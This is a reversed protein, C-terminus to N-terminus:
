RGMAAAFLEPHERSVRRQAEHQTLKPDAKLEDQVAEQFVRLADDRDVGPRRRAAVSPRTAAWLAPQELAVERMGQAFSLNPDAARKRAVEASFVVEALRKAVAAPSPSHDLVDAVRELIQDKTATADLGVAHAIETKMAEVLQDLEAEDELWDVTALIRGKRDSRELEVRDREARIRQESESRSRAAATEHEEQSAGPRLGLAATIRPSVLSPRKTTYHLSM